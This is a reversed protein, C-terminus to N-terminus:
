HLYHCTIDSREHGMEKSVVSLSAEYSMKLNQLEGHREQAWNWRLGHSGEYKQGTREAATKLNNRYNGENTRFIGNGAAIAKELRSYTETTVGVERVKGGKGSVEIWGKIQGSHPDPRLGRLQNERLRAIEDIRTGGEYQIHATLNYKGTVAEVLAKPNKYARSIDNRKGLEKAAYQRIGKLDFKYERGLEKEQSYRNLAVELKSLASSYKDFSSRELGVGDRGGNEIRDKLFSEVQHSEIRMIDKVGYSQQIYGFAEKAVARYDDYTSYSHCGLAKGMDSWTKAGAERAQSKAEHKSVGIDNVTSFVERVQWDISGRM